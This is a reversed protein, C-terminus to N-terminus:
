RPGTYPCCTTCACIAMGVLHSDTALLWRVADVYSDLPSSVVGNADTLQIADHVPYAEAVDNRMLLRRIAEKQDDNTM